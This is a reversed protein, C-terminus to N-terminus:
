ILKIKRIERPTKGTNRKLIKRFYSSSSFRLDSSVEEVKKDTTQLINVAKECLLRQRYANPTINLHKKFLYYIYSSSIYCKEAIQPISLFPNSYMCTHIKNLIKIDINSYETQMIPLIDALISYFDRLIEATVPIGYPINKIRNIVEDSCKLNQLMYTAGTNDPINMFAISIFSINQNKDGYWFSEYPLNRPIFFCGGEPIDISINKSIISSTGELMLAIYNAPSGCRNDTYNYNKFRLKNFWYNSEFYINRM